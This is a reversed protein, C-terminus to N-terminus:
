KEPSGWFVPCGTDRAVRERAEDLALDVCRDVNHLLMTWVLGAGEGEAVKGARVRLRVPVVYRTAKSPLATGDPAKEAPLRADFLEVAIAFLGPIDLTENEKGELKEEFMIKREGTRLNVIDARACRVHYELGQALSRIADPHVCKAGTAREAELVTARAASDLPLASPDIMDGSYNELFEAFAKQGIDRGHVASWAGWATTPAFAFVARHQSFAPAGRDHYDYVATLSAPKRTLFLATEPRKFRNAHEIFSGLAEISATGTTRHPQSRPSYAEIFDGGDWVAMRGDGDPLLLVPAKRGDPGEITRVEPKAVEQIPGTLLTETTNEITM